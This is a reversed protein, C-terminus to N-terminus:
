KITVIPTCPIVGTIGEEGRTLELADQYRDPHEKQKAALVSSKSKNPEQM